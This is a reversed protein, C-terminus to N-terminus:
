TRNPTRSTPAARACGLRLFEKLDAHDSRGPGSRPSNPPPSNSTRPAPAARLREGLKSLRVGLPTMANGLNHLVGKSLEAFGAQFSRDMLQRRSEAVHEVMRDFERALVAVEDNGPLDLRPTLDTGQGIRVAHRTVGALPGLVVRNLVIVLLLLASVGTIILGASAYTVAGRGHETIRRPVAVEFSMLPKGYIDSYPRFVQIQSDTEVLRDDAVDSRTPTMLFGAQAQEGISRLQQTTLLTGMIVMGKSLGGGTGDLVPAAALMM